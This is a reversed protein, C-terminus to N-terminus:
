VAACCGVHFVHACMHEIKMPKLYKSCSAFLKAQDDRHHSACCVPEISLINFLDPRTPVIEWVKRKVSPERTGETWGGAHGFVPANMGGAVRGVWVAGGEAGGVGKKKM